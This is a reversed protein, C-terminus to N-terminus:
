QEKLTSLKKKLSNALCIQQSLDNKAKILSKELYAIKNDKEICKLELNKNTLNAFKLKDETNKDLTFGLSSCQDSESSICLDDKSRKISSCEAFSHEASVQLSTEKVIDRLKKLDPTKRNM